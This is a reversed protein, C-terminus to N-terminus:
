GKTVRPAPDDRILTVIPDVTPAIPTVTFRIFRRLDRPGSRTEVGGFAEFSFAPEWLVGDSSHEGVLLIHLPDTDPDAGAPYEVRFTAGPFAGVFGLPEMDRVFASPGEDARFRRRNFLTDRAM